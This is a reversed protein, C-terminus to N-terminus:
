ILYNVLLISQIIREMGKDVIEQLTLHLRKIKNLNMGISLFMGAAQVGAIAVLGSESIIEFHNINLYMYVASSMITFSVVNFLVYFAIFSSYFENTPENLNKSHIGLWGMSIQNYELVKFKELANKKNEIEM